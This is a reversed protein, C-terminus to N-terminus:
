FYRDILSEPMEGGKLHQTKKTYSHFKDKNNQYRQKYTSRNYELVCQKCMTQLGDKNQPHKSFETVQKEVKCKNCTKM